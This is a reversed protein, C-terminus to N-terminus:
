ISGVRLYDMIRKIPQNKVTAITTHATIGECVM